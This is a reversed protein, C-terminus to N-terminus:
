GQTQRSTLLDMSYLKAFEGTALGSGYINDAYITTNKLPNYYGGFSLTYTEDDDMYIYNNQLYQLQQATFNYQQDIADEARAVSYAFNLYDGYYKKVKSINLNIGYEKGHKYNFPTLVRANGFQGDDLV